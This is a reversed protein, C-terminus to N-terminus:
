RKTVEKIPKQYISNGYTQSSTHGVFASLPTGAQYLAFGAKGLTDVQLSEDQEAFWDAGSQFAAGVDAQTVPESQCAGNPHDDLEEDLGHISGHMSICAACSHSFSCIWRWGIVTDSNARYTALVAGKFTRFLGTLALTVTQWRSADLAQTVINKIHSVAWNLSVGLILGAGVAKAADTGLTDLRSTLSEPQAIEQLKGPPATQAAHGITTTALQAAAAQTGLALAQHQSQGIVSRAFQGFADIHATVIRKVTQLRNREMLWALSVVADAELTARHADLEHYLADLTPTISALVSAHHTELQHTLTQADAHLLARYHRTTAHLDTATM